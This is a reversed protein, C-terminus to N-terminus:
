YFLRALDVPNPAPLLVHFLLDGSFHQKL